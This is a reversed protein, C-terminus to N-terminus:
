LWGSIEFYRYLKPKPFYIHNQNTDLRPAIRLLVPLISCLRIFLIGISNILGSKSFNLILRRTRKKPLTNNQSPLNDKM